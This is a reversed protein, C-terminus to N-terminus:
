SKTRGSDRNDFLIVQYPEALADLFVAGWDLLSFSLGMIMLLPYGRGKVESYISIDGVQTEPMQINFLIFFLFIYYNAKM